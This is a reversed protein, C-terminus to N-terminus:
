SRIEPNSSKPYKIATQSLSDSYVDMAKVLSLTVLITREGGFTPQGVFPDLFVKVSKRFRDDGGKGVGACFSNRPVKEVSSATKTYSWESKKMWKRDGSRDVESFTVAHIRVIGIGRATAPHDHDAVGLRALGQDDIVDCLFRWRGDGRGNTNGNYGIEDDV